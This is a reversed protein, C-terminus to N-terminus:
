LKGGLSNKSYRNRPIYGFERFISDRPLSCRDTDVEGYTRNDKRSLDILVAPCYGENIDSQIAKEVCYAVAVNTEFDNIRYYYQDGCKGNTVKKIYEKMANECDERFRYELDEDLYIYKDEESIEGRKVYEAWKREYIEDAVKRLEEWYKYVKKKFDCSFSKGNVGYKRVYEEKKIRKEVSDKIDMAGIAGLSGLLM